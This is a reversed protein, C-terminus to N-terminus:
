LDPSQLRKARKKSSLARAIVDAMHQQSELIMETRKMEMEMRLRENDRQMELKMQEIRLFGEGLSRIVAALESSPQPQPPPQSQFQPQQSPPEISRRKVNLRSSAAFKGDVSGNKLSLFPAAMAEDLPLGGQYHFSRPHDSNHNHNHNNDATDSDHETLQRGNPVIVSDARPGNELQDMREFFVWRSGRTIGQQQKETRYRKRLKEIKHRCQVSSKSPELGGCRLFVLNAVEEWHRAKLQGRKLAYWKEQYADILHNTEVETWPGPPKRHIIMHPAVIGGGGGDEQQGGGSSSSAAAMAM